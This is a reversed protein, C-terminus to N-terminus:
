FFWYFSMYEKALQNTLVNSQNCKVILKDLHALDQKWILTFPMIISLFTASM